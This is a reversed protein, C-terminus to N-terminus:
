VPSNWCATLWHATGRACITGRMHRHRYGGWLLYGALIRAGHEKRRGVHGTACNKMQSILYNLQTADQTRVARVTQPEAKSFGSTKHNRIWNLYHTVDICCATITNAIESGGHIGNINSVGLHKVDSEMKELHTEVM